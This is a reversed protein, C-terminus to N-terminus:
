NGSSSLPNMKDSDLIFVKFERERKLFANMMLKKGFWRTANPMPPIVPEVGNKKCEDSYAKREKRSRSLIAANKQFNDISSDMGPTAKMADKIVLQIKHNFCNHFGEIIGEEKLKKLASVINAGEDTVGWLALKPTSDDNLLNSSSLCEILFSKLVDGTVPSELKKVYLTECRLENGELFYISFDYVASKEADNADLGDISFAASKENKLLNTIVKALHADVTKKLKPIISRYFTSPHPIVYRPDLTKVAHQFGTRLMINNAESDVCVMSALANTIATQRPHNAPYPSSADACQFLTKQKKSPRNDDANDENKRKLAEKRESKIASLREFDKAANYKRFAGHLSKLHNILSTTNGQKCNFKANCILCRAEDKKDSLKDFWIWIPSARSGSELYENVQQDFPEM